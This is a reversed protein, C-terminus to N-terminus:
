LVLVHDNSVSGARQQRIDPPLHISSPYPYSLCVFPSYILSCTLFTLFFLFFKLFIICVSSYTLSPLLSIFLSHLSLCVDRETSMINYQWLAASGNQKIRKNLVNVAM